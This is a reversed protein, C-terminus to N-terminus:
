DEEARLIQIILEGRALIPRLVSKWDESDGISLAPVRSSFASRIQEGTPHEQITILKAGEHLADLVTEETFQREPETPGHMVYIDFKRLYIVLPSRESDSDRLVQLAAEHRAFLQNTFDSPTEKM